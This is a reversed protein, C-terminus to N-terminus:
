ISGRTLWLLPLEPLLSDLNRRLIVGSPCWLFFSEIALVTEPLELELVGISHSVSPDRFSSSSRLIDADKFSLTLDRTEEALEAQEVGDRSVLRDQEPVGVLGSLVGSLGLSGM